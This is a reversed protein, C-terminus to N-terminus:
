AMEELIKEYFEIIKNAFTKCRDCGVPYPLDDKMHVYQNHGVWERYSTTICGNNTKAHIICRGCDREHYRCLPENRTGDDVEQGDRIKKWHFITSQLIEKETFTSDEDM